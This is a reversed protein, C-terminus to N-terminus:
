QKATGISTGLLAEASSMAIAILEGERFLDGALCGEIWLGDVLGNIAIAFARCSEPDAPKGKAALFDALLEQLTNRFALYGERHIEALVPDVRVQSIFAAWLSISRSDAVPETLNIAIFDRLRTEPDGEVKSAKDTLSAIVARYAEAVMQDKSEFYHRVLGATVGARIAIQRVTAGKLGFESICDLTAEILEQRREGEPARHFSRRNM